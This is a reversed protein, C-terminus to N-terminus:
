VLCPQGRGSLQSGCGRLAVAQSRRKKDLGGLIELFGQIKGRPVSIAELVQGGPQLRRLLVDAEDEDVVGSM